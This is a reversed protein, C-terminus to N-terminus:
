AHLAPAHKGKGPGAPHRGCSSSTLGSISGFSQGCHKCAYRSAEAGEFLKHKGRGPGTPHRGCSSSTLGAISSFKQGCYECFYNSM